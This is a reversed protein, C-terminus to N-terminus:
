GAAGHGRDLWLVVVMHPVTLALLVLLTGGIAAEPDPPPSRRPWCAPWCSRGAAARRGLAARALARVAERPRGAAVLSPPPSSWRSCGRPTACRTGAGSGCRSRSWRRPWCGWPGSWSSTWWCAPGVRARVASTAPSRRLSWGCRRALGVRSVPAALLRASPRRSRPRSARGAPRRRAGAAPGARGDRGAAVAVAVWARRVALGSTERVVELEGWRRLAAPEAGAGAGPRGPGSRSWCCGPRARRARRVGPRGAATPRGTLRAALPPRGGRPAAGRTARRGDLVLVVLDHRTAPLAAGPPTVSSRAWSSGAHGGSARVRGRRVNAHAGAPQRDHGRTHAQQRTDRLSLNLKEPTRKDSRACQGHM